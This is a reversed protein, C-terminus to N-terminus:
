EHRVGQAADHTELGLWVLASIGTGLELKKATSATLREGCKGSALESIYSNSLGTSEALRSGAGYPQKELWEKLRTKM